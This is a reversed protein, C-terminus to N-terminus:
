GASVSVVEEQAQPEEAPDRSWRRALIPLAVIAILSLLIIVFPSAGSILKAWGPLETGNQSLTQGVAFAIANANWLGHFAVALLFSGLMRGWRKLVFGQALGWSAIGSTFSHMVTAGARGLLAALWAQEQQALFLAEFIAYGAGGIVGGFFAEGAPRKRLLWPWTVATKLLEETLPVLLAFYSLIVILFWPELLIVNIAESLESFTGPSPAVLLDLLEQGSASTLAGLGFLVIIPILLLIELFLAIIPIVWLGSLFQGWLRRQTFAVKGSRSIQIAMAAAALAGSIHAIPGLIFPLIDRSFALYGLLIALPFLLLFLYSLANPPQLPDDESRILRRLAFLIAPIGCLTLFSFAIVGWFSPFLLDREGARYTTLASFGFFLTFLFSAFTGLLAFLLFLIDVAGRGRSM